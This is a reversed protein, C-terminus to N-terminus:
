FNTLCKEASLETNAKIEDLIPDNLQSQYSKSGRGYIDEKCGSNENETNEERSKKIEEPTPKNFDYKHFYISNRNVRDLVIIKILYSVYIILIFLYISLAITLKIFDFYKLCLIIICITGTLIGFYLLQINEKRLLIDYEKIGYRRELTLNRGKLIDNDENNINCDKFDSNLNEIMLIHEKFTDNIVDWVKERKLVESDVKEKINQNIKESPFDNGIKEKGLDIWLDDRNKIKSLLDEIEYSLLKYKDIISM